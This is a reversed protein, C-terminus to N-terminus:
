ILVLHGGASINVQPQFHIWYLNGESMGGKGRGALGCFCKESPRSNAMLWKGTHQQVSSSNLALSFYRAKLIGNFYNSFAVLIKELTSIALM